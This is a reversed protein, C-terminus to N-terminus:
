VKGEQISIVKAPETLTKIHARYYGDIIELCMPIFVLVLPVMFLRSQYAVVFTFHLGFWVPVLSWFWKRTLEGCYNYGILVILPLVSLVGYIEFVNKIAISSLLNLKIMQFGAPVKWVEPPQYGFYVRIGIFIAFFLVYSIGVIGWSRLPPWEFRRLDKFSLSAWSFQSVLYLFPILISTERNLAALVTIFVLWFANGKKMVLLGLLLYFLNDFYTNFTLDSALVGNGMSLTVLGLFLTVLYFNVSFCTFYSFACYLLALNLLWRIFVFVVMYKLAGKKKLLENFEVTEQTPRTNTSISPSIKEEIPYIKDITNNYIFMSSEILWPSLVRYQWPNYYASKRELINMHREYTTIARGYYFNKYIPYAAMLMFFLWLFVKKLTKM